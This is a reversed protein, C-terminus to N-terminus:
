IWWRYEPREVSKSLGFCGKVCGITLAPVPLGRGM